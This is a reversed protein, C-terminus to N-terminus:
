KNWTVRVLKLTGVVRTFAKSVLFSKVLEDEVTRLEASRENL